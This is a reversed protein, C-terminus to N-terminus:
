DSLAARLRLLEARQERRWQTTHCTNSCSRADYRKATFTKGCAACKLIYQAM